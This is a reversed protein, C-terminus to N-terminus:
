WELLRFGLWLVLVVVWAVAVVGALVLVLRRVVGFLGESGDSPHAPHPM